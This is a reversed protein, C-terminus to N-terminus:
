KGTIYADVESSKATASDQAFGVTKNAPAKARAAFYGDLAIHEHGKSVSLELKKAGYAAVEDLTMGDHAFTGIEKSLKDVLAAKKSALGVIAKEDMAVAQKAGELKAIRAVLKKVIASDMGMKEKDDSDEANKDKGDKDEDADTAAAAEETVEEEVTDVKDTVNGLAKNIKEIVPLISELTAAVEELSPAKKEETAETNEDAMIKTEKNPLTLDFSDFAVHHDLVAVDCRSQDVLAIHNGRLKKQVYQYAQGNFFGAVKEYVCRYGLSLEKKGQEIMSSLIQSFIKIDSYLVGNEFSLNTGTTGHVGHQEAPLFGKDEAGLMAHDNVLPILQFSSQAELCQLEEAPRYVMYIEDPNEAGISKGLYPFVGERSIPNRKITIYDNQDLERASM